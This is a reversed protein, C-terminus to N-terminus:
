LIAETDVTNILFTFSHISTIKFDRGWKKQTGSIALRRNASHKMFAKQLMIFM